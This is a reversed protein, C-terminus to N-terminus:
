PPFNAPAEALAEEYLIALVAALRQIEAETYGRAIRHMVTQGEDDHKYVLMRASIEDASLGALSKIAGEGEYFGYARGDLRRDLRKDLVPAHCGACSSALAADASLSDALGSGEPKCATLSVFLAALLSMPLAMLFARNVSMACLGSAFM